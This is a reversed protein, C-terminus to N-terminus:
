EIANDFDKWRIFNPKGSFNKCILDFEVTSLHIKCMNLGIRLQPTTVEGSRLRDFDRLFESIRIRKEKCESRIRALLDDLDNPQFSM